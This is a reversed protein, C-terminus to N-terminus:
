FIIEVADLQNKLQIFEEYNTLGMALVPLMLQKRAERNSKSFERILESRLRYIEQRKSSSVKTADVYQLALLISKEMTIANLYSKKSEPLYPLNKNSGIISTAVSLSISGLSNTLFSDEKDFEHKDLTTKLRNNITLLAANNIMLTTTLSNLKDRTKSDNNNM